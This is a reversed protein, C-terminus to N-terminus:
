QRYSCLPLADNGGGLYQVSGVYSRNKTWTRFTSRRALCMHLQFGHNALEQASNQKLFRVRRTAAREHDPKLYSANCVKCNTM